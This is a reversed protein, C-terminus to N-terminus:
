VSSFDIYTIYQFDFGATQFYLTDLLQLYMELLYVACYNYVSKITYMVKQM